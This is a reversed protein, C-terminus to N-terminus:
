SWIGAVTYGQNSTIIAVFSCFTMDKNVVKSAQHSSASSCDRVKAILAEDSLNRHEGYDMVSYVNHFVESDRAMMGLYQEAWSMDRDRRLVKFPLQKWIAEPLFDYRDEPQIKTGHCLECEVLNAFDPTIGRGFCSRCKGKGGRPGRGSGNCTPCSKNGARLGSGDCWHCSGQELILKDGERRM